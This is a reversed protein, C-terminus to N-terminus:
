PAWFETASTPSSNSPNCNYAGNGPIHSCDGSASCCDTYSSGDACTVDCSCYEFVGNVLRLTPCSGGGQSPPPPPPDCACIGGSVSAGHQCPPNFCSSDCKTGTATRTNPVCSTSGRCCTETQPFTQGHCVTSPSPTWINPTKTGTNTRQGQCETKQIVSAGACWDRHDPKWQVDCCRFDGNSAIEDLAKGTPCSKNLPSALECSSGNWSAGEIGNCIAQISNTPDEIYCGELGAPGRVLTLPWIKKITGSTTGKRKDLRSLTVELNASSATVGTLNASEFKVFDRGYNQGVKFSVDGAHNKISNVPSPGSSGGLTNLCAHFNYLRKSIQRFLARQEFKAKM